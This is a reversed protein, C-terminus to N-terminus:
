AERSGDGTLVQYLEILIAATAGWIFYEGYPMAQLLHVQGDHHFEHPRHNRPDLIFSLPVEFVEAVEVPCPRFGASADVFGVVPHVLFGTGTRYHPLEGVVEVQEPYVGIEEDAERLAAMHPSPDDPEIRGGPFSIQGAHDRLKESRRTLIVNFAGAREVLPVLVAAPRLERRALGPVGRVEECHELRALRAAIDARSLPPTIAATM